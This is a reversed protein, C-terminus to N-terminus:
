AAQLSPDIWGINGDKRRYVINLANTKSNIFVFLPTDALDMRMVADRVSITPIDTNMEAIVPPSEGHLEPADEEEDENAAFVYETANFIESAVVSTPLNHHNSIRKKYRRLQKAIKQAASDFTSYIDDGESQGKVVLGNKTGVLVTIDARFFNGQKSLVVNADPARDFYKKIHNELYQNVHQQMSEGVDLNKGAISINM